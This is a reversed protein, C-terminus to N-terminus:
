ELVGTTEFIIAGDARRGSVDITASGLPTIRVDRLPGPENLGTKMQGLVSYAREPDVIAGRMEIRWVPTTGSAAERSFVMNDLLVGRPIANSVGRLTEAWRPQAKVLLGYAIAAEETASGTEGGLVEGSTRGATEDVAGAAASVRNRHAEAARRYTGATSDLSVAALVLYVLVVSAASFALV